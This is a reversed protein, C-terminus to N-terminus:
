MAHKTYTFHVSFGSILVPFITLFFKRNVYVYVSGKKAMHGATGSNRNEDNYIPRSEM